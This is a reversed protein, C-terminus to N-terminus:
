DAPDSPFARQQYQLEHFKADCPLGPLLSQTRHGLQNIMAPSASKCNASKCNYRYRHAIDVSSKM